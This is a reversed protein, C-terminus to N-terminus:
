ITISAMPYNIKLTPKVQSSTSVDNKLCKSTMFPAYAVELIILSIFISAKNFEYCKSKYALKKLIVAFFLTFDVNFSNSSKFRAV